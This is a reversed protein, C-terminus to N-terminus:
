LFHVPKSGHQADARSVRRSIRTRSHIHTEGGTWLHKSPYGYRFRRNLREVVSLREENQKLREKECVVGNYSWPGARKVCMGPFGNECALSGCLDGLDGVDYVSGDPCSCSGGWVGFKFKNTQVVNRSGPISTISVTKYLTLTRDHKCMDLNISTKLWCRMLQLSASDFIFGECDVHKLCERQCADVFLEIKATHGLAFSASITAPDFPM